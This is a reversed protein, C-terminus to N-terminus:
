GEGLTFYDLHSITQTQNLPIGSNNRKSGLEEFM